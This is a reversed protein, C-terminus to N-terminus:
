RNNTMQERFWKLQEFVPLSEGYFRPVSELKGSLLKKAVDSMVAFPRAMGIMQVVGTKIVLAMIEVSRIGGTLMIPLKQVSKRFEKAYEFFFAEPRQPLKDIHTPGLMPTVEYSGGSFEVFDVGEKELAIGVEISEKETWGDERQLGDSSNLKVALPYNQGVAKRVSRVVEILLRM